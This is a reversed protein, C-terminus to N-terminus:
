RPPATILVQWRGDGAGTSAQHDAAALIYCRTENPFVAILSQAHPLSDLLACLDALTCHTSDMDASRNTGRYPLDENKLHLVIAGKDEFKITEVKHLDAASHGVVLGMASDYRSDLRLHSVFSQAVQQVYAQAFEKVSGVTGVRGRSIGNSTLSDVVPKSDPNVVTVTRSEGGGGLGVTERLMGMTVLDTVPLSYGVLFLSGRPENLAKRADQWLKSLLPTRYFAAKAASPPIIMPVRGLVSRALEDAADQPSQPTESEGDIMWAIVPAGSNDGPQWFWNTSGHLKFLRMSPNPPGWGYRGAPLEPFGGLVDNRLIKPQEGTYRWSTQEWFLIQAANVALEILVDQNFTIVIARTVNLAHLLDQLWRNEVVDKSAQTVRECLVQALAASCLGFIYKNRLNDENSLDPQDEAIRSLWVEFSGGAFHGPLVFAEIAAVRLIVEDGLEDTLPMLKSLSKSFGAGLILVDGSPM